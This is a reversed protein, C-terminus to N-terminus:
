GDLFEKILAATEGANDNLLQHSGALVQWRVDPFTTALYRGDDLFESDAGNICLIPMGLGKLDTEAFPAEACVDAVLTTEDLLRRLRKTASAIRRPSSLVARRAAAPVAALLTAVDANLYREAVARLPPLPTEVLALRRVREPHALAFRLAVLSGYSFGALDFADDEVLADTLGALDSAMAELHYGSAPVDSNGHGRLDYLVVRRGGGVLSGAALYWSALNGLLLGHLMVLSPGSGLTQANLRLGNADVVPM